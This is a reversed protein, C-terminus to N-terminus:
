FDGLFTYVFSKEQFQSVLVFHNPSPGKPVPQIFMPSSKGRSVLNGYQAATLVTSVNTNKAHHFEDWIMTCTDATEKEFASIKVVERLKRPCPWNFSFARKQMMTKLLM